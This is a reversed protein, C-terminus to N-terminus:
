GGFSDAPQYGNGTWGTIAVEGVPARNTTTNVQLGDLLLPAEFGEISRVAEMFSKQTPEEMLTFAQELTAATAYGWACHPIITDIKPSYEEMDSLFQKVDEDGAYEESTFPKTFASTYVAPFADANGPELVQDPQSAVSALFIAPTWGLQQARVMSSATLAPVTNASFFVDANSNALEAIQADVTSDGPEFTARAVIKVNTGQVAEELGQVYAKGADDNQALVAVTVPEGSEVLFKGFSNGETHYTPMWGITWPHEDPNQSFTPNGSAVFVQPFEEKNAVPMIALNTRTGLGNVEAFAGENMIQRFNSVAKAPDYADDYANIEVTRTNGDGFEIGGDANAAEFYAEMGKLSCTGPAGAVGSLSTTTGLTITNEDIGQSSGAATNTPGEGGGGGGGDDNRGCGTLALSAVAALAVASKTGRSFNKTTSM